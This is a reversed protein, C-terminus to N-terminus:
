TPVLMGEWLRGCNNMRSRDVEAERDSSESKTVPLMREQELSTPYMTFSFVFKKLCAATSWYKM